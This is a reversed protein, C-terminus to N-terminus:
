VIGTVLVILVGIVAGLSAWATTIAWVDADPDRRRARLAVGAGVAAGLGMMQALFDLEPVRGLAPLWVFASAL